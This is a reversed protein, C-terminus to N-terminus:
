DTRPVLGALAIIALVADADPAGTVAFRPDERRAGYLDRCARLAVGERHSETGHHDMNLPGMVSGFQGFACEIPEYGVDRLRCVEGYDNSFKLDIPIEFEQSM